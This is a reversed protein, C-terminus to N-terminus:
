KTFMFYRRVITIFKQKASSKKTDTTLNYKPSKDTKDKGFSVSVTM